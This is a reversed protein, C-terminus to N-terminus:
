VVNVRSSFLGQDLYPLAVGRGRLSQNFTNALITEYSEEKIMAVISLCIKIYSHSISAIPHKRDNGNNVEHVRTAIRWKLLLPVLNNM